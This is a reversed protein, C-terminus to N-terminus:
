ESVTVKISNRVKRAVKDLKARMESFSGANSWIDWSRKPESILILGGMNLSQRSAVLM